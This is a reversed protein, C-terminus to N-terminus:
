AASRRSRRQRRARKARVPLLDELRVEGRTAPLIRVASSVTAGGGACIKAVTGAKMGALEAFALQSLGEKRLWRNLRMPPVMGCPAASKMVKKKLNAQKKGISHAGGLLPPPLALYGLLLNFFLLSGL